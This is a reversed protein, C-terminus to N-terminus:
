TGVHGLTDRIATLLASPEGKPIFARAGAALAKAEYISASQASVVICPLAPVRDHLHQVLEIGDMGPMQVDILALDCPAATLAALAEDGSSAEGAVELDPQAGVFTVMVERLLPHDDVM